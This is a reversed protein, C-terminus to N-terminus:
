YWQSISAVLLNIMNIITQEICTPCMDSQHFPMEVRQTFSRVLTFFFQSGNGATTGDNAMSVVGAGVHKLEHTVENAFKGGYISEGGRGTGTPDGGQAQTGGRIM